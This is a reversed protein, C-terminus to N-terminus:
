SKDLRMRPALSWRKQYGWATINTGGGDGKRHKRFKVELVDTVVAIVVVCSKGFNSRSTKKM